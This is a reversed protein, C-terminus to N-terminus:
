EHISEDTELHKRDIKNSLTKPFDCIDKKVIFSPRMYDPLCNSLERRLYTIDVTTPAVFAVTSSDKTLACTHAVVVAVDITPQRNLYQEIENLDVNHGNLEIRHEFRGTLTLNGNKDEFAYDRTKYLVSKDPKYELPKPLFRDETYHYAHGIYGHSVGKGGIYLEGVAGCPVPAMNDDLLYIQVGEIAKGIPLDTNINAQTSDAFFEYTATCVTGETPGYANFFRINKSTWKKAIDSGCPEGGSIVTMLTPFDDPTHSNFVTPCEILHTVKMKNMATIFESGLREKDRLIALSAGSLMANFIELVSVDFGISAVQAIVDSQDIGWKQILAQAVNILSSERLKVGKPKGTSGSTYVIHSFDKDDDYLHSNEKDINRDALKGKFRTDKSFELMVIDEDSIRHGFLVCLKDTDEFRCTDNKQKTTIMKDVHADSLIFTVRETPIDTPIPLFAHNCSLISLLSVVYAISNPLNIAIIEKADNTQCQKPSSTIIKQKMVVIEKWMKGYTFADTTTKLAIDMPTLDCQRRLLNIIRNYDKDGLLEKDGEDLVCVDEDKSQLKRKNNDAKSADM